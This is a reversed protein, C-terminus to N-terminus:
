RIDHGARAGGKKIEQRRGKVRRYYDVMMTLTWRIPTKTDCDKRAVESLVRIATPPLEEPDEDPSIWAAEAPHGSDYIGSGGATIGDGRFHQWQLGRSLFIGVLGGCRRCLPIAEDDQSIQDRSPHGRHARDRIGGPRDHEPVLTCGGNEETTAKALQDARQRGAQDPNPHADRGPQAIISQM